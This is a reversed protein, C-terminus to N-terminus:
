TDIRTGFQMSQNRVFPTLVSDVSLHDSCFYHKQRIPCIYMGQYEQSILVVTLVRLGIGTHPTVSQGEAIAESTQPPPRAVSVYSAFVPIHERRSLVRKFLVAAVYTHIQKNM